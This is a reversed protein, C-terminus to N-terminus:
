ISRTRIVNDRIETLTANKIWAPCDIENHLIYAIFENAADLASM